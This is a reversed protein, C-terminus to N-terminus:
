LHLASQVMGFVRASAITWGKERFHPRLVKPLITGTERLYRVVRVFEEREDATWERPLHGTLREEEVLKFQWTNLVELYHM